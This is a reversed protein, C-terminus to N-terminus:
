DAQPLLLHVCDGDEFVRHVRESLAVIKDALVGDLMEIWPKESSAWNKYEEDFEADPVYSYWPWWESQKGDGFQTRMVNDISKWTSDDKPVSDSDRRIGWLTKNWGSGELEIRLYKDQETFKVGFGVCSGWGRNMGQDWELRFGIKGLKTKLDDQFLQLLERKLSNMANSIHFASGINAASKRIEGIVELEESMDLEGNINVRIFKAFEEIFVRVALARTQAACDDLWIGLDQYDMCVFNRSEALEERKTTSISHESPESNSLYILLWEKNIAKSKLYDAYDSLQQNQDGAWPKNEIGVVGAPSALYIDIRRQGNAQQETVVRWDDTSAIWEREIKKAFAQLFVRGQGHSGKPNLMDAVVKSVGMEDTRMYRFLNFSPALQASFRNRAVRLTGIRFAVQTLLENVDKM